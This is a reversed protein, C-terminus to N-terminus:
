IANATNEMSDSPSSSAYTRRLALGKLECGTEIEEGVDHARQSGLNEYSAYLFAFTAWMLAATIM